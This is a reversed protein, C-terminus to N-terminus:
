EDEQGHEADLERALATLPRDIEDRTAHGAISLTLECTSVTRSGRSPAAM